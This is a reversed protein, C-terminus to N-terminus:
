RQKLGARHRPEVVTTWHDPHLTMQAELVQASMRRKGLAEGVVAGWQELLTRAAVELHTRAAQERQMRAAEGQLTCLAIRVQVAGWALRGAAM